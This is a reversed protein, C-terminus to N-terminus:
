TKINNMTQNKFKLNIMKIKLRFFNVLSKVIFLNYYFNLYQNLHLHVKM